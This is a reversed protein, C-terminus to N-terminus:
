ATRKRKKRCHTRAERATPQVVGCKVCPTPKRHAASAAAVAEKREEETTDKWRLAVLAAGPSMTKKKPM